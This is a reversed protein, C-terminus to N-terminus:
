NLPKLTSYLEELCTVMGGIGKKLSSGSLLAFTNQPAGNIPMGAIPALGLALIRKM